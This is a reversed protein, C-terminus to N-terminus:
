GVIKMGFDAFIAAVQALDPPGAPLASLREFFDEFNGGPVVTWVTRGATSGINQFAHPIHRPFFIQDGPGATYQAGGLTILFTGEVVHILEDERDHVHPPIGHGPPTTLAFVYYHGASDRRALQVIASHGLVHLAKGASPTVVTASLTPTMM